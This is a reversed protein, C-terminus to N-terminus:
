TAAAKPTNALIFREFRTYFEIVNKEQRYGHGEDGVFMWEQKKGAREFAAKIADGNAPDVARDQGGYVHFVPVAIRNVLFTPSQAEFLARDAKGDGIIAKALEGFKGDKQAPQTDQSIFLDSVGVYNVGWKFLEPRRILCMLAAYGGYSAGYVGLRNVDAYGQDITWQLGDLMDDIMTTGFNKYSARLHQAGYGTSGRFNPQLVAFGRNAMFQVDADFGWNDKAWPGGHPHLVLPVPSGKKFNRPLTLYGGIKMGDRAAWSVYQMPAM